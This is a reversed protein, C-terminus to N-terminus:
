FQNSFFIYDDIRVILDVTVDLKERAASLNQLTDYRVHKTCVADAHTAQQIKATIPQNPPGLVELLKWREGQYSAMDGPLLTMYFDTVRMSADKVLKSFLSSRHAVDRCEQHWNCLDTATFKLTEIVAKDSETIPKVDLQPIAPFSFIGNVTRPIAGTLRTFATTGYTIVHQTHKICAQALIVELTRRCKIQGDNMALELADNYPKMRVEIKAHHQPSTVAGFDWEPIGMM